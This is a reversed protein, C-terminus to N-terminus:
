VPAIFAATMRPKPSGSRTSVTGSGWGGGSPTTTATLAV